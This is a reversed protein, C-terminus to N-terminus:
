LLPLLHLASALVLTCAWRLSARERLGWYLVQLIARFLWFCGFAALALRGNGDPPGTLAAHSALLAGIGLLFGLSLHLSQRVARSAADLQGRQARGGPVATGLAQGIAMALDFAAALALLATRM